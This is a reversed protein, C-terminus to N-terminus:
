EGSPKKSRKVGSQCWFHGFMPIWVWSCYDPISIWMMMRLVNCLVPVNEYLGHVGGQLGWKLTASKQLNTKRLNHTRARGNLMSIPPAPPSAILKKTNGIKLGLSPSQYVILKEHTLWFVTPLTTYWKDDFRWIGQMVIGEPNSPYPPSAFLKQTNGIKVEMAVISRQAVTLDCDSWLGIVTRDVTRDCDSWINWWCSWIKM